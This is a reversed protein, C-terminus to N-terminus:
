TQNNILQREKREDSELPIGEEIKVQNLQNRPASFPAKMVTSTRRSQKDLVTGEAAFLRDPHDCYHNM